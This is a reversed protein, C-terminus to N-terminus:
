FLPHEFSLYAFAGYEGKSPGLGYPFAIGPVIQLGSEFNIAFRMGPNIFFTDKREKTGDSLVSEQSSFAAELMLNFNESAVYIVSTGFNFGVTDSKAGGAEKSGPTFTLGANSHTVWKDSVEVSIPINTQYGLAGTGLGKKYDGTPLLISLRPAIAVAEKFVLQYRYNLAIDGIGTNRPSETRNVPITYSFQHTQGPVPWEQTFTYAWTKSKKQYQFTQIHQIVGPEQNYAEEVLFSNDQIKKDEGEAVWANFLMAIFIVASFLTYRLASM